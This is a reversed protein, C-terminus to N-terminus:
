NGGEITERSVNRKNKLLKVMKKYSIEGGEITERSVNRKNKLM